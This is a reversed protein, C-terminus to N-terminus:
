DSAPAEDPDLAIPAFAMSQLIQPAVRRLAARDGDSLRSPSLGVWTLGAVSLMSALVLLDVAAVAVAAPLVGLHAVGWVVGAFLISSGEVSLITLYRRRKEPLFSVAVLSELLEGGRATRLTAIASGLIVAIGVAIDVLGFASEWGIAM